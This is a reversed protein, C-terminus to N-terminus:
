DKDVYNIVQENSLGKNKLLSKLVIKDKLVRKFLKNVLFYKFPQRNLKPLWSYDVTEQQRQNLSNFDKEMWPELINGLHYANNTYTALRYGDMLVVPKDMFTFESDGDILYICNENPLAEFVEKKYTAVFHSCGLVAITDDDARLTGISDSFKEPLYPWGISKVFKELGAVDKVPNFRLKKSFWYKFWINATLDLHKRYVPVPCVAGAKPFAKFVKVVEDEWQNLFLVDADTITVLREEVTRVAKLISNIKGIGEREIILEDIEQERYLKILRENIEDSCKNSIISVKIKSTATKLISFLCLEFIKYADKFYDNEHPIHLPIIVRHDCPEKQVLKGGKTPNYGKRM